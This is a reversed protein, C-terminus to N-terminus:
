HRTDVIDGRPLFLCSFFLVFLFLFCRVDHVIFMRVGRKKPMYQIYQKTNRNDPPRAATHNDAVVVHIPLPRHWQHRPQPARM